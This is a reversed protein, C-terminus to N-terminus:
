TGLTMELRLSKHWSWRTVQIKVLTINFGRSILRLYHVKAKSNQLTFRGKADSVTSFIVNKWGPTCDEISAESIASQNSKIGIIGSMSRSKLVRDLQVTMNGQAVSLESGALLLLAAIASVMWAKM